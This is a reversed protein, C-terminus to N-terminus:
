KNLEKQLKSISEDIKDIAAKLEPETNFQLMYQERLKTLGDHATQIQTKQLKKPFTPDEIIPKFKNYNRVFTSKKKDIIAQAISEDQAVSQMESKSTDLANLAVASVAKGGPEDKSSTVVSSVLASKSKSKTDIVLKKESIEKKLKDVLQKSLDASIEKGNLEQVVGIIKEWNNKSKGELLANNFKPNSKHMLIQRYLEDVQVVIDSQKQFIFLRNM